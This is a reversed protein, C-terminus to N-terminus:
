KKEEQKQCTQDGGEQEPNKNRLVLDYDALPIQQAKYKTLKLKVAIDTTQPVEFEKNRRIISEVAGEGSIGLKIAQEIAASVEKEPWVLLLTLVKVFYQDGDDYRETLIARYRYFVDPLEWNQFPLGDRFARPKHELVKLYHLPNLSYKYKDFLRTHRTIEKGKHSIILEDAYAKVSIRTGVYESPVSYRNYDYYILCFPTVVLENERCCDFGFPNLQVLMQQEEEFLEYRTKDPTEPHKNTRSHIISFNILRDNLEDISSCHLAPVFFNRELVGILNEVRGKENGSAPNCFDPFNITTLKGAIYAPMEGWDFQFADAPNFVLPIYGEKTKTRIEQKIQKVCRAISEYSGTYRYEETLITFIRWATRRQKRPKLEDESLWTEIQDKVPGIAPEIQNDRPKYSFKTQGSRLIKQVTPRSLEVIRTIERIPVKDQFKLKRVQIIKDVKTM